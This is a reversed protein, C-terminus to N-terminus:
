KLIEPHRIAFGAALRVLRDYDAIGGEIGQGKLFRDYVSWSFRALWQLRGRSRAMQIGRIDSTVGPPIGEKLLSRPAHLLLGLWGCYRYLPHKSTVLAYWATFNAGGEGAVGGIHALEHAGIFIRDAWYLGPEVHAELTFPSTIGTTGILLLMGPVPPNKVEAPLPLDGLGFEDLARGVEGSLPPLPGSGKDLGPERLSAAARLARRFLRDVWPKGPAGKLHLRVELPTARYHYGWFLFFPHILLSLVLLFRFLATVCRAAFGPRFATAVLGLFRFLFFITGFLFLFGSVSWSVEGCIGGLIKLIWPYIEQHYLHDVLSRPLARAVLVHLAGLALVTWAWPNLFLPRRRQPVRRM